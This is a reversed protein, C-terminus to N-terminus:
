MGALIASVLATPLYLFGVLLRMPGPLSRASFLGAIGMALGAVISVAAVVFAVNNSPGFSTNGFLLHWILLAGAVFFPALYATPRRNSTPM